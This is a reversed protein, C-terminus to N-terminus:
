IDVVVQQGLAHSKARISVATLVNGTVTVRASGPGIERIFNDGGKIEVDFTSPAVSQTDYRINIISQHQDPNPGAVGAQAWIEVWPGWILPPAWVFFRSKKEFGRNLVMERPLKKSEIM